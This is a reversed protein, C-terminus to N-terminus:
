AQFGETPDSQPFRQSSVDYQTSPSSTDESFSLEVEVLLGDAVLLEVLLVFEAVVLLKLDFVVLVLMLPATVAGVVAGDSV